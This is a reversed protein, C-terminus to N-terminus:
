IRGARRERILDAPELRKNRVVQIPDEGGRKQQAGSGHKTPVISRAHEARVSKALGAVKKEASTIRSAYKKAEYKYGNEKAHALIMPRMRKIVGSEDAKIAAKLDANFKEQLQQVERQHAAMIYRAENSAIARQNERQVITAVDDATLPRQTQQHIEQAKAQVASYVWSDMANQDFTPETTGNARAQALANNFSQIYHRQCNVAFANIDATQKQKKAEEVVAFHERVMDEDVQTKSLEAVRKELEEAKAEALFKEKLAVRRAARDQNTQGKSRGDLDAFLDDEDEDDTELGDPEDDPEDEVEETKGRPVFDALSDPKNSELPAQAADPQEAVPAVGETVVPADTKLPAFPTSIEIENDAM